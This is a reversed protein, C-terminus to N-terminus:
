LRDITVKANKLPLYLKSKFFDFESGTFNKDYVRNTLYFVNEDIYKIFTKSKILSEKHPLNLKVQTRFKGHKNNYDKFILLQNKCLFRESYGLGCKGQLFYDILTSSGKENVAFEFAPLGFNSYKFTDNTPNYLLFYDLSDVKSKELYIKLLDKFPSAAVTESDIHQM